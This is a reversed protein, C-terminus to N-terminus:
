TCRAAQQSGRSPPAALFPKEGQLQERASFAFVFVRRTAPCARGSELAPAVSGGARSPGGKHWPPTLRDSAQRDTTSGATCESSSRGEASTARGATREPSSRGEVSTASLGEWGGCQCADLIATYDADLKKHGAVAQRLDLDRRWRTKADGGRVHDRHPVALVGRPAAIRHRM